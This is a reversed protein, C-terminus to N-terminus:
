RWNVTTIALEEFALFGHVGTHLRKKSRTLGAM